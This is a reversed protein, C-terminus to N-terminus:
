LAQCFLPIRKFLTYPCYGPSGMKQCIGDAWANLAPLDIKSTTDIESPKIFGRVADCVGTDTAQEFCRSLYADAQWQCFVGECKLYNLITSELCAQETTLSASPTLDASLKQWYRHLDEAYFLIVGVVLAFVM